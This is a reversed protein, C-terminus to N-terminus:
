VMRRRYLLAAYIHNKVARPTGHDSLWRRFEATSPSWKTLTSEESWREVRVKKTRKRIWLKVDRKNM